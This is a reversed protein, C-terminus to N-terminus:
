EKGESYGFEKGYLEVNRGRLFFFMNGSVRVIFERGFSVKGWLIFFVYRYVM